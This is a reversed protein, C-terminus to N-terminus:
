SLNSKIMAIKDDDTIKILLTKEKSTEGRLIEISSKPIKFTKSLFEILSKNAKGDVPPAMIKIKVGDDTKIIENKSANPSIKLSVTLGEEKKM